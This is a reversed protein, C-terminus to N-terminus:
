ASHVHNMGKEVADLLEDMDFPKSLFADAGADRAIDEGDRSASICLVYIDKSDASMKLRRILQDGSVVPMWLDVIFLQPLLEKIKAMAHVSDNEVFTEVDITELVMQLMDTIGKDDDCVLIRKNM